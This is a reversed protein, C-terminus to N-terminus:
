VATEREPRWHWVFWISLLIALIFVGYFGYQIGMSSSSRAPNEPHMVM